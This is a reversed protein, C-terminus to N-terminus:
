GYNVIKRTRVYASQSSGKLFIWTPQHHAAPRGTFAEWGTGGRGAALAPMEAKVVRWPKFWGSVRARTLSRPGHKLVPRDADNIHNSYIKIALLRMLCQQPQAHWRAVPRLRVLPWKITVRVRVRWPSVGAVPGHCACAAHHPLGPPALPDSWPQRCRVSATLGSGDGGLIAQLGDAVAHGFQHQGAGESSLAGAAVLPRQSFLGPLPPQPLGAGIAERRVIELVKSERKL